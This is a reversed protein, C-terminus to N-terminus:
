RVSFIAAWELLACVFLAISILSAAEIGILKLM